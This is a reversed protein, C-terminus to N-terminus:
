KNIYIYLMCIIYRYMPSGWTMMPKLPIDHDDMDYMVQIICPYMVFCFGGFLIRPHENLTISLIRGSLLRWKYHINGHTDGIIPFFLPYFLSKGLFGSQNYIKWHNGWSKRVESAEVLRLGFIALLPRVSPVSGDGLTGHSGQDHGSLTPFRRSLDQPHLFFNIIDIISIHHFYSPFIISIHHFYSPFIISVQHFYSPFIISIQQFYPFHHIRHHFHHIRHHFHPFYSPFIICIHHFYSPFIISMHQFYPFHHIRHHFHHFYSPFIISILFIIFEIISIIFIHHVHFYSPFIISM